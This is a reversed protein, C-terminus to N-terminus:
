VGNVDYGTQQGHKYGCEKCFAFRNSVICSVDRYSSRSRSSGSNSSNCSKNTVSDNDSDSKHDKDLCKVRSNNRVLYVPTLYPSLKRGGNITIWSKIHVIFPRDCFQHGEFLRFLRPIDICEGLMSYEDSIKLLVVVSLKNENDSETESPNYIMYIRLNKLRPLRRLAQYVRNDLYIYNSYILGCTVLTQVFPYSNLFYEPTPLQSIKKRLIWCYFLSM